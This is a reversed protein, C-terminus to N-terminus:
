RNFYAMMTAIITAAIIANLMGKVMWTWHFLILYTAIAMLGIIIPVSIQIHFSKRRELRKQLEHKRIGKEIMKAWEKKSIAMSVPYNNKSIYM